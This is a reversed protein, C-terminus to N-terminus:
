MPLFLCLNINFGMVYVSYLRTQGPRLFGTDKYLFSIDCLVYGYPYMSVINEGTVGGVPHISPGLGELARVRCQSSQVRVHVTLSCVDSGQVRAVSGQVKVKYVHPVTTKYQSLERSLFSEERGPRTKDGTELYGVGREPKTM